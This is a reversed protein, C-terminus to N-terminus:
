KKEPLHIRKHKSLASLIQSRLESAKGVFHVASGLSAITKIEEKAARLCNESANEVM